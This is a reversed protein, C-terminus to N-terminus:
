NKSSNTHQASLHKQNHEVKFAPLVVPIHPQASLSSREACARVSEACGTGLPFERCLGSPVAPGAFAEKSLAVESARPVRTGHHWKVRPLSLNELYFFGVAGRAWRGAGGGGGIARRRWGLQAARVVYGAADGACGLVVV